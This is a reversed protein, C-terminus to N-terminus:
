RCPVTAEAQCRFMVDGFDDPASEWRCHGRRRVGGRLPRPTGGLGACISASNQQARAIAEDCCDRKGAYVWGTDGRGPYQGASATTAISAMALSLLLWRGLPAGVGATSRRLRM